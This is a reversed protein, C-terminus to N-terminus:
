GAARLRDVLDVLRGIDRAEPSPQSPRAEVLQRLQQVDEAAVHREDAWPGAQRVLDIEEERVVKLAELHGCAERAQPLDFCPVVRAEALREVEVDGINAAPREAEVEPQKRARRSDHEPAAVRVLATEDATTSADACM